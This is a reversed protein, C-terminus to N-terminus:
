NPKGYERAYGSNATVEDFYWPFMGVIVGDAPKINEFAFRFAAM